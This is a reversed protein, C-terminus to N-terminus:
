GDTRTPGLEGLEGLKGLERTLFKWVIELRGKPDRAPWM